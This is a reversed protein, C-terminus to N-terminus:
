RIRAYMAVDLGDPSYKYHTGEYKMGLLKAWRHGQEFGLDVTTEIRPYLSAEFCRRVARTIKLLDKGDVQESIFAWGHARGEWLEILGACCLLRDGEFLSYSDGSLLWSAYSKDGTLEKFTAQGSQLDLKLLDDPAYEKVIM